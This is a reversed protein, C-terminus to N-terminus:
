QKEFKIADAKGKIVQWADRIRCILPAIIPRAIVWKGDIQKQQTLLNQIHLM